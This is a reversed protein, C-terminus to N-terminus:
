FECKRRCFNSIAHCTPPSYNWEGNICKTVPSGRMTYGRNCSFYALMKDETMMVKGNKPKKLSSCRESIGVHGTIYTCNNSSAHM